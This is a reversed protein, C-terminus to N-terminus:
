FGFALWYAGEYSTYINLTFSTTARARILPPRGDTSNATHRPSITVTYNTGTFAKPFTVAQTAASRAAYGGQEIFGDSWVRYWQTDSLYVSTVVKVDQMASIPVFNNKVFATSAAKTSSDSIDLTGVNPSTTFTKTGAITENGTVHVVNDDPTCYFEMETPTLTSYKSTSLKNFKLNPINTETSM